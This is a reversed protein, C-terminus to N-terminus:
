TLPPIPIILKAIASAARSAPAWSAVPTGTLSIMGPSPTRSSSPVSISAAVIRQLASGFTASSRSM